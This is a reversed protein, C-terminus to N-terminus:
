SFKFLHVIKKKRRKKEKEKGKREKAMLAFGYEQNSPFCNHINPPSPSALPLGPIKQKLEKKRKRKKKM